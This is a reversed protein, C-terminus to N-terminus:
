NRSETTYNSTKRSLDSILAPLMRETGWQHAKEMTNNRKYKNM